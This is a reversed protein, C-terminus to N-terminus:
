IKVANVDLNYRDAFSLADKKRRWRKAKTLWHTFYTEFEVFKENKKSQLLYM